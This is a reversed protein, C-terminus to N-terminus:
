TMEKAPPAPTLLARHRLVRMWGDEDCAGLAQWYEIEDLTERLAEALRNAHDEAKQRGTGVRLLQAKTMEAERRVLRDREYLADAIKRAEDRQAELATIHALLINAVSLPLSRESWGYGEGERVWDIFEEVKGRASEDPTM